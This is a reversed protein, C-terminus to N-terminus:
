HALAGCAKLHATRLRTENDIAARPVTICWNYHPARDPQWRNSPRVKCASRSMMRQFHTVALTAYAECVDDRVPLPTPKKARPRLAAGIVFRGTWGDSIEVGQDGWANAGNALGLYQYRLLRGEDTVAFIRGEGGYFVHRFKWGKGIKLGQEGWRASGDSLGLFRYYLLDGADTIGFIVGNEGAFVQRFRWGTGIVRGQEGWTASGDTLGLYKYFLLEGNQRIAYITGDGGSFVTPFRWGTGIKRGQLGWNRAGDDLGDFRYYLLDGSASVAFIAGEGGSFLTPFRWGTGILVRDIELQGDSIQEVYRSFSLDDAGDVSFIATDARLFAPLIISISFAIALAPRVLRLCMDTAELDM